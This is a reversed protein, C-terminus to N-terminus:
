QDSHGRLRLLNSVSVRSSARVRAVFERERDAAQRQTKQFNNLAASFENVLRDKQIKRQRQCVCLSM